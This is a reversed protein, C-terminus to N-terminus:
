VGEGARSGRRVPRLGGASMRCPRYRGAGRFREAATVTSSRTEIDCPLPNAPQRGCDRPDAVRREERTEGLWAHRNRREAALGLSCSNRCVRRESTTDGSAAMARCRVPPGVLGDFQEDRRALRSAVQRCALGTQTPSAASLPRGKAPRMGAAEESARGDSRPPSLRRRGALVARGLWGAYKPCNNLAAMPTPLLTAM